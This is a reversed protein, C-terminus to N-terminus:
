TRSEPSGRFLTASEPSGSLTRPSGPESPVRIGGCSWGPPATPPDPTKRVGGNLFAPYGSGGVARGPPITLPDPIKRVGGNLSALEVRICSDPSGPRWGWSIGMSMWYLPYLLGQSTLDNRHKNCFYQITTSGTKHLGAHVFLKKIM